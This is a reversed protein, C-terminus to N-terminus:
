ARSGHGPQLLQEGGIPADGGGGREERPSQGRVAASRELKAPSLEARSGRDLRIASRAGILRDGWTRHGDFRPFVMEVRAPTVAREGPVCGLWKPM